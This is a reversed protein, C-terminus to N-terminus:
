ITEDEDFIAYFEEDSYPSEGFYIPIGNHDLVNCVEEKSDLVMITLEDMGEFPNEGLKSRIMWTVEHTIHNNEDLYVAANLNKPIKGSIKYKEHYEVAIDYAEKASINTKVEIEDIKCFHNM